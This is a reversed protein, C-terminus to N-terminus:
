FLVVCIEPWMSKEMPLADSAYGSLGVEGGRVLGDRPCDKQDLSEEPVGRARPKENAIM